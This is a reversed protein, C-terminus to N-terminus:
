ISEEGGTVSCEGHYKINGQKGGGRGTGKRTDERWEKVKIREEGGHACGGVEKRGM